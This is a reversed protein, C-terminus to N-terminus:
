KREEDTDLLRCKIIEKEGVDQSVPGYHFVAIKIYYVQGPEVNLRIDKHDAADTWCIIEGSKCIVPYYSGSKKLNISFGEEAIIPIGERYARLIEHDEPFTKRDDSYETMSGVVADYMTYFRTNPPVKNPNYKYHSYESRRYRTSRGTTFYTVWGEKYLITLNKRATWEKEIEDRPLANGAWLKFAKGGGAFSPPRYVYVVSMGAPINEVKQFEPGGKYTYLGSFTSCGILMFISVMIVLIKLSFLGRLLKNNM